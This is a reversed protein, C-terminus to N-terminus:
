LEDLNTNMTFKVNNLMPSLSEHESTLQIKYLFKDLVVDTNEILGYTISYFSPINEATNYFLHGTNGTTIDLSDVNIDSNFTSHQQYLFSMDSNKFDAPYTVGQNWKTDTVYSSDISYVGSIIDTGKSGTIFSQINGHADFEKRHYHGINEIMHEKELIYSSKTTNFYYGPVLNKSPEKVVIYSYNLEDIIACRMDDEYSTSYLLTELSVTKLSNANAVVKANGIVELFESSNPSWNNAPAGGDDTTICHIVLEYIGRNLNTTVKNENMMNYDSSSDDTGTIFKDNDVDYIKYKTIVDATTEDYTYTSQKITIDANDDVIIFGKWFSADNTITSIGYQYHVPTVVGETDHEMKAFDILVGSVPGNNVVDYQQSETLFLNALDYKVFKISSDIFTEHEKIPLNIIGSLSYLGTVEDHPINTDAKLEHKIASHHNWVMNHPYYDNSDSVGIDNLPKTQYTYLSMNTMTLKANRAYEYIKYFKIGNIYFEPYTQKIANINVNRDYSVQSSNPRYWGPIHAFAENFTVTRKKSKFYWNFPFGYIPNGYSYNYLEPAVSVMSDLLPLWATNNTDIVGSLFLGPVLSSDYYDDQPYTGQLTTNYRKDGFLIDLSNAISNDHLDKKKTKIFEIVEPKLNDSSYSKLLQWDYNMYNFDVVGSIHTLGIIDSLGVETFIDNDPDTRVLTVKNVSEPTVYLGNEDEFHAPVIKDKAVFVDVKCKEPIYGDIDAAITGIIVRDNNYPKIQISNSILTSTKSNTGTFIVINYISLYYTNSDLVDPTEKIFIFKLHTTKIIKPSIIAISDYEGIKNDSDNTINTNLVTTEQAPINTWGNESKYEVRFYGRTKVSDVVVAISNFELEKNNPDLQIIFNLNIATPSNTVLEYELKTSADNNIDFIMKADAGGVYEASTISGNYNTPIINLKKGYYHHLNITSLTDAPIYMVGADIDIVPYQTDKDISSIYNNINNANSFSETFVYRVNDLDTKGNNIDDALQGIKILENKVGRYEKLSDTLQDLTYQSQMNMATYLLDFDDVMAEFVTTLNDFTLNTFISTDMMPKSDDKNIANVLSTVTNFSPIIADYGIEGTIYKNYIKNYLITNKTRM